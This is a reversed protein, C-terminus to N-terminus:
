KLGAVDVTANSFRVARMGLQKIVDTTLMQDFALVVVGEAFVNPNWKKMWIEASGGAEDTQVMKGHVENNDAGIVVTFHPHLEGVSSHFDHRVIACVNRYVSEAEHMQAPSLSFNAHKSDRVSFSGDSSSQALSASALVLLTFLVRLM